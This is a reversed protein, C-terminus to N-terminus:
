SWLTDSFPKEHTALGLRVALKEQTIGSSTRVDHLRKGFEKADFYM